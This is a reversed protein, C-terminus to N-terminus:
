SQPCMKNVNVPSIHNNCYAQVISQFDDTAITIIALFYIHQMKSQFNQM